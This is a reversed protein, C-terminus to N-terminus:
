CVGRDDGCGESVKFLGVLEFGGSSASGFSGKVGLFAKLGDFNGANGLAKKECLFLERNFCAFGNAEVECVGVDGLVVEEDELLAGGDLFDAVGGILHGGVGFRSLFAENWVVFSDEVGGLEQLLVRHLGEAEDGGFLGTLIGVEAGVGTM